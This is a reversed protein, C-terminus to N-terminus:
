GETLLLSELNPSRGDIMEHESVITSDCVEWFLRGLIEHKPHTLYDLLQQKSEFELIAAFQYTKDGFDRRYGPDVATHRGVTARTIAPISRFCDTLAQAFSETQAVSIDPRPNFLVLHVIM